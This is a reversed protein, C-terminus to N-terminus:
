IFMVFPKKYNNVSRIFNKKVEDFRKVDTIILNGSGGTAKVPVQFIGTLNNKIYLKIESDKNSNPQHILAPLTINSHAPILISLDRYKHNLFIQQEKQLSNFNQVYIEKINQRLKEMITSQESIGKHLSTFRELDFLEQFFLSIKEWLSEARRDKKPTRPQAYTMANIEYITTEKITQSHLPELIQIPEQGDDQILNETLKETYNLRLAEITSM